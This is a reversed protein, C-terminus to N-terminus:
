VLFKFVAAPSRNRWNAPSCSIGLVEVGFVMICNVSAREVAMRFLSLFVWPRGIEPFLCLSCSRGFLVRGRIGASNFSWLVTEELRRSMFVVPVM